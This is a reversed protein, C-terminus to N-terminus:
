IDTYSNRNIHYFGIKIKIVKLTKYLLRARAEAMDLLTIGRCKSLGPELVSCVELLEESIAVKLGLDELSLQDWRHGEARGLAAALHQKCETLLAHQPHLSPSHAALLSKLGAVDEKDMQAQVRLLAADRAAYQEGPLSSPCSDCPWPSAPSRPSCPLLYSSYVGEGMPLLAPEPSPLLHGSPCSPCRLSSLRAGLELPDSCRPCQCLFQKGRLLISRRPLPSSPLPPLM